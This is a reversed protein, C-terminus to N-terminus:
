KWSASEVAATEVTEVAAPQMPDLITYGLTRFATALKDFDERYVVRSRNFRHGLGLRDIVLRVTSVPVGYQDAIEVSTFCGKLSSM